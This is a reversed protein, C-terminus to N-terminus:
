GEWREFFIVITKHEQYLFVLTDATVSQLVEYINFLALFSWYFVLLSAIIVYSLSLFSLRIVKIAFITIPFFIEFQNHRYELGTEAHM